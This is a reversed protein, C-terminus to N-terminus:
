VLNSSFIIIFSCLVNRGLWLNLINYLVVVICNRVKSFYTPEIDPTCFIKILCLHYNLFPVNNPFKRPTSRPSTLPCGLATRVVLFTRQSGLVADWRPRTSACHIDCCSCKRPPHLASLACRGLSARRSSATCIRSASSRTWNEKRFSSNPSNTTSSPCLFSLRAKRPSASPHAPSFSFYPIIRKDTM